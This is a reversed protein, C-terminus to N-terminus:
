PREARVVFVPRRTGAMIGQAVSGLLTKALGTRGHSGVCIADAGFREAARTVAAAADENEIIEAELNLRDAADAPVLARLQALLKPNSVEPRPEDGASPETRKPGTVTILKLTGGRPTIACAYAVAKNGLASFDTAALVRELRPAILCRKDAAPPVVAVSVLAHHLVTRSVSGFRLRGFGHRRHTGVVILDVQQRQALEFLYGEPHGWGPEVTVTVKEPPLQMAVRERLDRELFNQIEAPNGTLPLPGHYGLRQAEDPPWDIHVVNIECPGAKQLGNIWQLASDGAASFDYGALVRLPRKDRLWAHLQGGPRVILTPIPSTEATREAVSGVLLRRALGHGVAGLVILRAESAVAATVLEDFASGSLIKEQVDARRQRLREAEHTLQGRKQSLAAEFLTPDVEAFGHFEDVHVLILPVGLRRALDAAMDAAEGAAASFDTGCVIPQGGATEKM